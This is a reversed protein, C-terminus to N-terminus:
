PQPKPQEATKGIKNCREYNPDAAPAKSSEESYCKDRLQKLEAANFTAPAAQTYYAWYGVGVGLLTLAILVLGKATTFLFTLVTNV